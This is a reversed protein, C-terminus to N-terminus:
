FQLEIPPLSHTLQQAQAPKGVRVRGAFETVQGTVREAIQDINHLPKRSLLHNSNWPWCWSSRYVETTPPAKADLQRGPSEAVDDSGWM